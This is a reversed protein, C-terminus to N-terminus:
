RAKSALLNAEAEPAHRFISGVAPCGDLEECEGCVEAVDDASYQGSLEEQIQAVTKGEDLLGLVEYCLEDVVHVSGSNVDMVIYYGNNIYQHIM